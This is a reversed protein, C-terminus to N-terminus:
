KPSCPQTRTCTHETAVAPEVSAVKARLDSDALNFLSNRLLSSSSVRLRSKIRQDKVSDVTFLVLFNAMKLGSNGSIIKFRLPHSTNRPVEKKTSKKARNTMKPKRFRLWRRTRLTPSITLSPRLQLRANVKPDMQQLLLPTDIQSKRMLLTALPRVEPPTRATAEKRLRFHVPNVPLMQTDLQWHNSSFSPLAM